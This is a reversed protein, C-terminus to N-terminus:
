CREKSCAKGCSNKSNDITSSVLSKREEGERRGLNGYRHYDNSTSVERLYNLLEIRGNMLVPGKVINVNNEACAKEIEISLNQLTRLRNIKKNKIREIMQEESENILMIKNIKKHIIVKRLMEVTKKDGSVELNTHCTLAAAIVRLIDVISDGAQIRLSMQKRPRYSLYNDQGILKTPDHEHGFYHIWYFSYNCASSNWLLKEEDSLKIKNLRKSMIAVSNTVPESETPTSVQEAVMFQMLYNPGGAKAGKGFSSAKCGGFPQRQVIAGTISRNIYCNGSEIHVSWYNQERLDLSQLGSTLGYKTANALKVAEEFDEARMVGLLPGFLENQQMFSGEVIGIKIGPSWLRGNKADRKPELLWEEGENLETLGQLLTNNPEQILPTVKTKLEWASGVSLSAAADRLQELFHRDDYLEAELILLSCASCKQGSHGFASEIAHMIAQDRDALRSVVIANKGGTEAYLDLGPRMKLFLEATQTAGTLIVSDISPDKILMSGVPDDECVLFQLVDKPVGAEWCLKAVHWAALVTEQAPKFIVVNGTILSSVIGGIPIACPFNWPPTVLVVGKPNWKVDRFHYLEQCNRRYYECFDIAESVEGDAEFVTKGGDGIMAGILIERNKRLLQAIKGLMHSREEFPIAKWRRVAQTATSIASFVDDETALNYRYPVLDPQSPDFGSISCEDRWIERSNIVNPIDLSDVISKQEIIKKAWVRNKDLSWDTNPENEFSVCMPLGIPPNFRNQRRRPGEYINEAADCAKEFMAVQKLWQKSGPVLDFVHSLFNDPSTNEDLRRVLYAVANVFESETAVPSYLLVDDVLKQVVRRQNDAMGELMEFTVFEEINNESILLMAYAIDFMNHSAIGVHVAVARDRQLGYILMRKYNADVDAKSTYPAQPWGEISAELKEMALNAGKVLRIKIPAGGKEVRKIAWEILERQVSFSDPLYSQLVVGASCKLFESEDLVKKFLEVTLHLDSYEEMDLNVFKSCAGRKPCIYKQKQSARLLERLRESLIELTNEWDLLNIQSFITSVKVSIYEIEHRLLDQVYIELRRKAENESLIAEGLHNINLRVGEKIRKKIHKSRKRHEGPIIVSSTEKRMLRKLLPVFICSFPKGMYQFIKLQIQNVSSFFQPVGYRKLLFVLQDAVRGSNSSRFCQDTVRSTFIKGQPDDLMRALQHQNKKEERTLTHRAENIMAAALLIALKKREEVVPHKGKVSRIINRAKEILSISNTM